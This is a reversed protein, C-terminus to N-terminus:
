GQIGSKKLELKIENLRKECLYKEGHEHEWAKPEACERVICRGIRPKQIRVYNDVDPIVGLGYSRM